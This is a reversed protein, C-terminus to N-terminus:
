TCEPNKHNKTYFVAHLIYHLANKKLRLVLFSHVHCSNREVWFLLPNTCQL